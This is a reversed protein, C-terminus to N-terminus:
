GRDRLWRQVEEDPIAWDRGHKRGQLEGSLLVQRIRSPDVGVEQALEKTTWFRKPHKEKTM